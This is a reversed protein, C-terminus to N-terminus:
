YWRNASWFRMAKCPSGYRHSIYEFGREIQQPVATRPDLGLIQPIGGAHLKVRKGGRTQTVPVKNKAAPRWNSEKTWLTHLCSWEARTKWGWSRMKAKAHAKAQEPSKITMALHKTTMKPSQALAPTVVTISVAIAAVLFCRRIYKISLGIV